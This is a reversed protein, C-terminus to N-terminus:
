KEEEYDCCLAYMSPYVHIGTIRLQLGQYEEAHRIGDTVCRDLMATMDEPSGNNRQGRLPVALVFVRGERDVLPLVHFGNVDGGFSQFLSRELLHDRDTLGTMMGNEDGHQALTMVACPQDPDMRSRLLRMTRYLMKCTIKEGSVLKRFFHRRARIMMEQENFADDSLDARIRNLTGNLEMLYGQVEEPTKGAEFIPILPYKEQLYALLRTEEAPSIAIAIGDAHHKMLSEKAGEVDSRVHPRRFGNYEWNPVQNFAELVEERDSVLLLKYM